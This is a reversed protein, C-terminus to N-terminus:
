DNDSLYLATIFMNTVQGTSVGFLSIISSEAMDFSKFLCIDNGMKDSVHMDYSTMKVEKMPFTVGM